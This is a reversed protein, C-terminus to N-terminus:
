ESLRTEIRELTTEIRDLREGNTDLTTEIRDLRGNNADLTTEIRALRESNVDLTSDIDRYVYILGAIIAAGIAIVWRLDRKILSVDTVWGGPNRDTREVERLRRDISQLTIKEQTM